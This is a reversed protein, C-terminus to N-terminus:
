KTSAVTIVLKGKAHGAGFYRFAEPVENLPYYRDIIPKIKGTEILELIFTLGKNPIAGLIGMKKTGTMSILAGLFLTQFIHAMSGGVMIYMGESSLARKYDFISHAAVFDLILDYRRGNQTFDEQTFDIVHDAGNQRMIDSKETNDVGTVEAGFHKALQVAFSGSGGGAGNILVNQGPKVQGKDRLGQLAVVAAQPLAAVEEFTMNNPKLTLANEPACVYEAFGGGRGIIDGFVEDGPKFQKVKKGVVEVRGAIDTGLIQNNPKFLGWMRVYVPTGRLFEQDSANVSAAYVKIFVEDDKPRPKEIEELKLEDPSGYKTYVIAKM